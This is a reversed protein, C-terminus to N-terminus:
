ITEELYYGANRASRIAINAHVSSLKKRLYSIYVWVVQLDTESDYGWIKELFLESSIRQSPSKLLLEMMQFEKNTLKFNGAPGTLEYTSTNLTINGFHLDSDAQSLRTRTM